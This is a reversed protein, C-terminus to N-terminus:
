ITTRHSSSTQPPSHDQCHRSTHYTTKLTYPLLLASPVKPALLLTDSLPCTSLQTFSSTTQLHHHTDTWFFLSEQLTRALSSNLTLM